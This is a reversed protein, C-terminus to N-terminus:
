QWGRVPRRRRGPQGFRLRPACGGGGVRSLGLSSQGAVRLRADRPQWGDHGPALRDLHHRSRRARRPAGGRSAARGPAETSRARCGEWAAQGGSCSRSVSVRCQTSSRPPHAVQVQPRQNAGGPPMPVRPVAAAAVGAVVQGAGDSRASRPGHDPNAQEHNDTTLIPNGAPCPLCLSRRRRRCGSNSRSM